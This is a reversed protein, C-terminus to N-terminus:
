SVSDEEREDEFEGKLFDIAAEEDTFLTADCEPCIYAVEDPEWNGNDNYEVDADDEELTEGDDSLYVRNTHVSTTWTRYKLYKIEAKCEPCRVPKLNTAIKEVSM